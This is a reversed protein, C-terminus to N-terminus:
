AGRSIGTGRVSVSDTVRHLCQCIRSRGAKCLFAEARQVGIYTSRSPQKAAEEAHPIKTQHCLSIDEDQPARTLARRSPRVTNSWDILLAAVVSLAMSADVMRRTA